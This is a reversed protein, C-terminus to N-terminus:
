GAGRWEYLGPWQFVLGPGNTSQQRQGKRRRQGICGNHCQNCENCQDCENRQHCVYCQHCDNGDCREWQHQHGLHWIRGIWRAPSTHLGPRRHRRKLGFCGCGHSWVGFDRTSVSLQDVCSVDGYSAGQCHHHDGANANVNPLTAAISVNGSGDFSTSGSIDGSIAITVASKLKAAQAAVINYVSALANWTTGTFKEWYGNASNWRVANTPLNAAATTAPDLGKALDGAIANVEATVNVYTDTTQPKSFDSTNSM